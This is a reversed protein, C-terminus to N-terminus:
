AIISSHQIAAILGMEKPQQNVVALFIM